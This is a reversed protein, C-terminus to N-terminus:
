LMVATPYRVEARNLMAVPVADPVAVYIHVETFEKSTGEPIVAYTPFEPEATNCFDRCAAGLDDFKLQM